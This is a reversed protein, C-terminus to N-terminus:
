VKNMVFSAVLPLITRSLFYTFVFVLLAVCGCYTVTPLVPQHSCRFLETIIYDFIANLVKRTGQREVVDM